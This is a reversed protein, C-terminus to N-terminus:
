SGPQSLTVGYAQCDQALVQMDGPQGPPGPLLADTNETQLDNDLTTLDSGLQTGNAQHEDAQITANFRPTDENFAIKWWAQLDNCIRAAQASTLSSSAPASTVSSAAPSPTNPLSSGCASVVLAAVPLLVTITLKTM